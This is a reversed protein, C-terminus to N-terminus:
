RSTEARAPFGAVLGALRSRLVADPPTGLETLASSLGGRAGSPHDGGLRLAARVRRVAADGASGQEVLLRGSWGLRSALRDDALVRAVAADRAPGDDGVLVHEGDRAGTERASAPDTVTPTGWALARPLAPGVAVAVAAAAVATDVDDDAVPEGAAGPAPSWSWGLGSGWAVPTAPLGRAERLRRRVFPSVPSGAPAGAADGADGADGRGAGLVVLRPDDGLRDDDTLLVTAARAAPSALDAPDTVWVAAPVGAPPPLPDRHWVVADPAAVQAADRLDCSRALRALLGRLAAPPAAGVLLGVVPPSM